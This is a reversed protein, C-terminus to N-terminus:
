ENLLYENEISKIKGLHICFYMENKVAGWKEIGTNIEIRDFEFKMRPMIKRMGNNFKVSYFKKFSIKELLIDQILEDILPYGVVEKFYWDYWWQPTYHEGKWLLFKSCYLPTIARYEVTKGGRFIMIFWKRILNLVLDKEKM